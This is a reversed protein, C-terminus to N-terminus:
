LRDHITKKEASRTKDPLMEASGQNGGTMLDTGYVKKGGPPYPRRDFADIPPSTIEGLGPCLRFGQGFGIHDKV